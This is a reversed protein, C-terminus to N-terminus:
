THTVFCHNFNSKCITFIWAEPLTVYSVSSLLPLPLNETRIIHPDPINCNNCCSAIVPCSLLSPENEPLLFLIESILGGLRMDCPHQSLILPRSWTIGVTYRQEHLDSQSKSKNEKGNQAKDM